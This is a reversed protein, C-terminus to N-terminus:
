SSSHSFVHACDDFNNNFIDRLKKSTEKSNVNCIAEYDNEDSEKEIRIFNNRVAFYIKDVFEGSTAKEFNGDKAIKVYVNEPYERQLRELLKYINKEKHDSNLAKVVIKFTGGIKIFKELVKLFNADSLNGSLNPEYILFEDTPNASVIMNTIIITAHKGSWNPFMFDSNEKILLKVREDYARLSEDTQDPKQTIIESEENTIKNDNAM